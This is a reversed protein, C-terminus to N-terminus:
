SRFWAARSFRKSSLIRVSTSARRSAPHKVVNVAPGTHALKELATQGATLDFSNGRPSASKVSLMRAFTASPFLKAVQTALNSVRASSLAITTHTSFGAPLKKQCCGFIASTMFCNEKSKKVVSKQRHPVGQRFLVLNRPFKKAAPCFHKHQQLCKCM